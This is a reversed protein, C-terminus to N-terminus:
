VVSKRDEEAPHCGACVRQFEAKGRGDPLAPSQARVGAAQVLLGAAGLVIVVAGLPWGRRAGTM